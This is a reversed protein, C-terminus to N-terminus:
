NKYRKIKHSGLGLVRMVDYSSQGRSALVLGMSAEMCQCGRREEATVTLYTGRKKLQAEAEKVKRSVEILM